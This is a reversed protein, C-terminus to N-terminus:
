LLVPNRRTRGKSHELMVRSPTINNATCIHHYIKALEETINGLENQATGLATQSEVALSDMVKVDHSLDALTREQSTLQQRLDSLENKMRIVSDFTAQDDVKFHKINDRLQELEAVCRAQWSRHRQLAGAPDGAGEQRYLRSNEDATLKDLDALHALLEAVRARQGAAERQTTEMLAQIEKLTASLQQKEVETSDLQKELKKLQGLHIESFLDEAPASDEGGEGDEEGEEGGEGMKKFVPSEEDGESGISSPAGSESLGQISLALNGLQYM